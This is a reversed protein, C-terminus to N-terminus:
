LPSRWSPMVLLPLFWVRNLSRSGWLGYGIECCMGIYGVYSVWWAWEGGPFLYNKQEKTEKGNLIVYNPAFYFTTKRSKNNSILLLSFKVATKQQLIHPWTLPLPTNWIHTLYGEVTRVETCGLRFNLYKYQESWSTAEKHSVRDIACTHRSIM